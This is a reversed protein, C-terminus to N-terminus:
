VRPQVREIVAVERLSNQGIYPSFSACSFRGLSLHSFGDFNISFIVITVDFAFESIRPWSRNDWSRASAKESVSRIELHSEFCNKLRASLFDRISKKM